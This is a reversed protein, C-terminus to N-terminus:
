NAQHQWGASLYQGAPALARLVADILVEIRQLQQPTYHIYALRFFEQWTLTAGERSLTTDDRFQIFLRNFGTLLEYDGKMQLLLKHLPPCPLHAARPSHAQQYANELLVYSILSAPLKLYAALYDTTTKDPLPLPPCTTKVSMPKFFTICYQLHVSTCVHATYIFM